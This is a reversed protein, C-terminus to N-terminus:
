RRSDHSCRRFYVSEVERPSIDHYATNRRDSEVALKFHSPRLVLREAVACVLDQTKLANTPESSLQDLQGRDGEVDLMVLIFVSQLMDVNPADTSATKFPVHLFAVEVPGNAFNCIRDKPGDTRREIHAM